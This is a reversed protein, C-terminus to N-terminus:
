TAPWSPDGFPGRGDFKEVWLTLKPFGKGEVYGAKAMAGRAEYLSKPIM